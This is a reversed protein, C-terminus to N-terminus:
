SLGGKNMWDTASFGCCFYIFSLINWLSCTWQVVRLRVYSWATASTRCEMAAKIPGSSGSQCLLWDYGTKNLMMNLPQPFTFDIDRGTQFRLDHLHILRSLSRWVGAKLRDEYVSLQLCSPKRSGHLFHLMMVAKNWPSGNVFMVFVEWFGQLIWGFEKINWIYWINLQLSM